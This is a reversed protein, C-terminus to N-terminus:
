LMSCLAKKKKPKKSDSPQKGESSNSAAPQNSDTSNNNSTDAQAEPPADLVEKNEAKNILRVLAEFVQDVNIREKASTEFYKCLPGFTKSLEEGQEKTVRIICYFIYM